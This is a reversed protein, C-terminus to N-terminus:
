LKEFSVVNRYMSLFPVRWGAVKVKYTTGIELNNQFDASNFKGFLFSDTNEFVENETYIIFASTLNKGSGQTIREKNKVTITITNESFFYAINYSIFTFFLLLISLYIVVRKM